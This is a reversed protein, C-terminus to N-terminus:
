LQKIYIIFIGFCYIAKMILVSQLQVQFQSGDAFKM